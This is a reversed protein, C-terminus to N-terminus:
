LEVSCYFFQDFFTVVEIFGPPLHSFFGSTTPLSSAGNATGKAKVQKGSAKRKGFKEGFNGL